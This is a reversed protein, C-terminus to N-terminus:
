LIRHVEELSSHRFSARYLRELRRSGHAVSTEPDAYRHSLSATVPRSRAETNSSRWSSAIVILAFVIVLAVISLILVASADKAANLAPLVADKHDRVNRYLIVFFDGLCGCVPITYAIAVIGPLATDSRTRIRDAFCDYYGEQKSSM